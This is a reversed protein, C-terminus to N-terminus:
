FRNISSSLFVYEFYENHNVGKREAVDIWTDLWLFTM